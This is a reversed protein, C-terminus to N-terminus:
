VERNTPLTLHTYSVPKFWDRLKEEYGNEKGAKYVISQIDEPRMSQDCKMLNEVLANLANKEEANPKKFEKSLKVVDNFYKIAYEVM